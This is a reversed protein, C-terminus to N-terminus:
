TRWTLFPIITCSALNPYSTRGCSNGSNQSSLSNWLPFAYPLKSNWTCCYPNQWRTSKNLFTHFWVVKIYSSSPGVAMHRHPWLRCLKLICSRDSRSLQPWVWHFCFVDVKLVLLICITIALTPWHVWYVPNNSQNQHDLPPLVSMDIVVLADLLCLADPWSNSRRGYKMFNLM